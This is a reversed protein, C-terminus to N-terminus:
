GRVQLEYAILTGDLARREGPVLIACERGGDIVKDSTRVPLALGAGALDDALVIVKRDGQVIPGILEKAAYVQSNGAASYDTKTRAAGAGSYRRLTISQGCFSRYDARLEDPRV